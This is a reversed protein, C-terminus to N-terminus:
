LHIPAFCQETDTKYGGSPAAMLTITRCHLWVSYFSPPVHSPQGVSRKEPNVSVGTGSGIWVLRSQPPWTRAPTPGVGGGGGWFFFFWFSQGAKSFLDNSFINAGRGIRESRPNNREKEKFFFWVSPEYGPLLVCQFLTPQINSWRRRRQGLMLGVNNWHTM